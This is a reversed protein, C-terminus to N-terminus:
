KRKYLDDHNGTRELIIERENVSYILLWNDRIHCERYGQLDGSLSHDKYKRPLQEGKEFYKIAKDLENYDYHKRSLTKWQIQQLQIFKSFKRFFYIIIFLFIDVYIKKM